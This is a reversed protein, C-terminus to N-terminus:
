REGVQLQTNPGRMGGNMGSMRIMNTGNYEQLVTAAYYSVGVCLSIGAFVVSGGVGLMIKRKIAANDGELIM